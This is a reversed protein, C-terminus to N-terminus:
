LTHNRLMSISNLKTKDASLLTLVGDQGRKISGFDPANSESFTMGFKIIKNM